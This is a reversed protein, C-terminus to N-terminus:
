TNKPDKHLTLIQERLLREVERAVLANAVEPRGKGFIGIEVLDDLYAALEATTSVVIRVTALKNKTRAVVEV